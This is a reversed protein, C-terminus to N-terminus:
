RAAERQCRHAVRLWGEVLAAQKASGESSAAGRMHELEIAAAELASELAPHARAHTLAATVATAADAAAQRWHPDPHFDALYRAPRIVPLVQAEVSALLQLLDIGGTFTPACTNHPICFTAVSVASTVCRTCRNRPWPLGLVTCAFDALPYCLSHQM